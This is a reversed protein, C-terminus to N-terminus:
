AHPKMCFLQFYREGSIEWDFESLVKSRGRGAIQIRYERNSLLFIIKDALVTADAPTVLCGTDEDIVDRIADLSSAIVACECGMAEIIVLGLGEQDGSSAIISPVIAISAATYLNPLQEHERSGLFKVSTSLGLEEARKELDARLPGDGVIDLHVEPFVSVVSTMAELLYVVGKKEVLRGVFILRNDMRVVGQVPRFKNTLDVGMPMISIKQENIGLEIAKRKMAQSVVCFWNSQHITWQKIKRFVLNDLTYIDGGHSTCVLVPARSGLLSSVMACILGQPILWHAHVFQHKGSKLIKYLAIMQFLMLFPVQFYCWPNNKLNALIGGSHTLSQMGSIFYSYRHVNIGDLIEHHEAGDAHPALVDVNLGRRQLYRCLDFVFTPETDNKWRPFTSTVVLIGPTSVSM